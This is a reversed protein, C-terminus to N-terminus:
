RKLEAIVFGYETKFPLHIISPYALVTNPKIPVVEISGNGVFNNNKIIKFQHTFGWADKLAIQMPIPFVGNVAEASYTYTNGNNSLTVACVIFSTSNNENADDIMVTEGNKYLIATYKGTTLGTLEWDGTNAQTSLRVGDKFLAIGVYDGANLVNLSIDQNPRICVKDGRSTCIDSYVINTLNEPFTVKDLDMYRYIRYEEDQIKKSVFDEWSYTTKRIRPPWSDSIDIEMILGNSNRRIGTIFECHGTSVLIDCLKMEKQLKLTDVSQNATDYCVEEVNSLTPISMTVKLYPLDLCYCVFESCNTGFVNSVNPDAGELPFYDTYKKTYAISKPNNLATLYSYVSTGYGIFGWETARVSSYIIGKYDTNPHMIQMDDYAATMEGKVQYVIDRMQSARALCAWQGPTTPLDETLKSGQRALMAMEDLTLKATTGNSERFGDAIATLKDNVVIVDDIFAM